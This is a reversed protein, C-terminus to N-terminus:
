IDNMAKQGRKKSRRIKLFGLVNESNQDTM